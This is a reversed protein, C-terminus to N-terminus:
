SSDSYSKSDSRDSGRHVKIPRRRRSGSFCRCTRSHVKQGRPCQNAVILRLPHVRKGGSSSDSGGSRKSRSGYYRGNSSDSSDSKDACGNSSSSSSDSHGNSSDSSDSKSSGRNCIPDRRGYYVVKQCECRCSDHNFEKLRNRGCSRVRACVCECTNPDLVKGRGCQRAAEAPCECSCKDPNLVQYAPCSSHKCVCACLSEDFVQNWSCKDAAGPPCKPPKIKVCGCIDLDLEYGDPCDFYKPQCIAPDVINEEGPGAYVLQPSHSLVYVICTCPM